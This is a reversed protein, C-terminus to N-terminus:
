IFYIKLRRNCNYKLNAELRNVELFKIDNNEILKRLIGSIKTACEHMQMAIEGRSLPKDQKKLFKIVEYQGM